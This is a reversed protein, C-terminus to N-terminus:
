VGSFMCSLLPVFSIAMSINNNKLSHFKRDYIHPLGHFHQTVIHRHLGCAGCPLLIHNMWRNLDRLGQITDNKSTLVHLIFMKILDAHGKLWGHVLMPTWHMPQILKVLLLPCQSMMIMIINSIIMCQYIAPTVPVRKCRVWHNCLVITTIIMAIFCATSRTCHLNVYRCNLTMNYM